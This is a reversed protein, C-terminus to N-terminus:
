KKVTFARALQTYGDEQLTLCPSEADNKWAFAELDATGAPTYPMLKIPVTVMGNDDTVGYGPLFVAGVRIGVGVNVGAAPASTPPDIPIGNGAPDEHAPRTVVAKVQAVQGVKYSKAVPKATVYFTQVQVIDFNSNELHRGVWARCPITSASSSAPAALLTSLIAAAALVAGARRAGRLKTRM